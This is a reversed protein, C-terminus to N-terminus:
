LLPVQTDGYVQTQVAPQIPVSQLVPKYITYNNIYVFLTILHMRLSELYRTLCGNDYIM